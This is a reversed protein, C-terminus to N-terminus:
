YDFRLHNALATSGKRLLDLHGATRPYEGAAVVALTHRCDPQARDLLRSYARWAAAQEDTMEAFAVVRSGYGACMGPRRGSEEYLEALRQLADCQRDTLLAFQRYHAIPGDDQMWRVLVGAEATEVLSSPRCRMAPGTAGHDARPRRPSPATKRQVKTM